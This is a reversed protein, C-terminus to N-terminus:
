RCAYRRYMSKMGTTARAGGGAGGRHGRGVQPHQHVRPGRGPGAAAGGGRPGEADAQRRPVARGSLLLLRVLGGPAGHRLLNVARGGEVLKRCTKTSPLSTLAPFNADSESADVMGQFRTLKM